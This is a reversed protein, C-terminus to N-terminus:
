FLKKFQSLTCYEKGCLPIKVLKDNYSVRVYYNNERQFLSFNLLSAYRPIENLPTGLTTMVSMISSDHASYLVYKLQSNSQIAQDFYNNATKIFEHGTPYSIEKLKFYNIQAGESLAIIESADDSSIGRPLPIHHLKRIYLNDALLDLQQFNNLKIGTQTSWYKLKNKINVTKIKWTQHSVFFVKALAFINKSPKVILLNDKDVPITEITIKQNMVDRKNPPYLGLLLSNASTITRKINTSRAYLSGLKYNEPLLHFRNVYKERLKKGLQIEQNIGKETLEGLDKQWQYPAKPIESAPTRDGHRILDISFLLKDESLAYANPFSLYILLVYLLTNKKIM